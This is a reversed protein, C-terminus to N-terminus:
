GKRGAIELGSFAGRLGTLLGFAFVLVCFGCIAFPAIKSVKVVRAARDRGVNANFEFVKRSIEHYGAYAPALKASLFERAEPDRGALAMTLFDERLKLFDSRTRMLQAYNRGDEADFISQGYDRWLDDDSNQRILRAIEQRDASQMLQQLRLWNEQSRDIALGADVLSPLTDAAIWTAERQVAGAVWFSATAVMGFLLLALASLILLEKRFMNKFANPFYNENYCGVGPPEFKARM